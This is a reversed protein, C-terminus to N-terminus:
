TANLLKKERSQCTMIIVQHNVSKLLRIAQLTRADDYFAFTDDLLLPMSIEKWLLDAAALRICLYVQEITGRSVQELPILREKTNLSIHFDEDFVIADYAGDTIQELYKSAQVNMEDGFTDQIEGAVRYMTELALRIAKIETQYEANKRCLEEACDLKQSVEEYRKLMQEQEWELRMIDKDLKENEEHLTFYDSENAQALRTTLEMRKADIATLAGVSEKLRMHKDVLLRYYGVRKKHKSALYLSFLLVIVAATIFGIGWYLSSSFWAEKGFRIRVYDVVFVQAALLLAIGFAVCKLVTTKWIDLTIGKEIDEDTIHEFRKGIKGAFGAKENEWREKEHTLRNQEQELNELEKEIQAKQEQESAYQKFEQEKGADYQKQLAAEQAALRELDQNIQFLESVAQKKEEEAAPNLKKEFSKREKLLAEQAATLDIEVSKALGLNAMHNKLEEQLGSDTAGKMQGISVTNVYGSETIGGLIRKLHDEAPKLEQGKDEDILHVYRNTKLFSRELRYTHGDQEFRMSGGYGGMNDWPEYQSYLDSKGRRKEIGFLMGRIFTHITSKGAENKGEIINVDPRLKITKGHFKGFHTLQLELIIM